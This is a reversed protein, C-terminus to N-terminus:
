APPLAVDRRRAASTVGVGATVVLLGGAVVTAGVHQHLGLWGVVFAIAPNLSLLVAVSSAAM